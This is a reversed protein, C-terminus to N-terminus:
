AGREILEDSVVQFWESVRKREVFHLLTGNSAGIGVLVKKAGSRRAAVWRKPIKHLVASGRGAYSGVFGNSIPSWWEISRLLKGLVKAADLEDSIAEITAAPAIPRRTSVVVTASQVPRLRADPFTEVRAELFVDVSRKSKHWARKKDRLYAKWQPPSFQAWEPFHYRRGGAGVFEAGIYPEGRDRREAWDAVVHLDHLPPALEVRTELLEYSRM